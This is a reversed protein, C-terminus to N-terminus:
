KASEKGVDAEAREFMVTIKTGVGVESVLSLEAKHMAVIHKVIALGLGTGGTSKSRSKDVRYFREFIREQHEKPIGIGTDQVLLVCRKEEETVSVCVSGGTNNYSIANDCLNYILEEIMQKDGRIFCPTGEMKLLVEREEARLQLMNVSDGALEYLNLSEVSLEQTLVDMESLRITDNILTLLRNASQHIGAAFRVADQGTAMGNEILESYGSIVALPTKLEHSVNATFEQRVNANNLIAEHQDRITEAFPILEEYIDTEGMHGMDSAMREIPRILSQTLYHSLVLCATLLLLIALLLVPFSHSLISWINHSERAVRLINGDELRLTYYFTDQNVTASQRVSQGEGYQLADWVEPRGAHNDMEEKDAENDYLVNGEPDIITTRINEVGQSLNQQRIKETSIKEIGIGDLLHAYTKLDDMVQVQLIHYFVVTMLFFTVTVALLSILVFQQNIKRKM